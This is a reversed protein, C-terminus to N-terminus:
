FCTAAVTQLSTVNIRSHTEKILVGKVATKHGKHSSPDFVGAGLLEDRQNGLPKAAAAKLVAMSTPQTDSVVPDGARTLTWAGSASQELCGVVQAIDLANQGRHRQLQGSSVQENQSQQPQAPTDGTDISYQIFPTFMEDWSQNAERFYVEKDTGFNHAADSADHHHQLHENKLSNDYHATVILKSGAPLKLPKDLVYALQWHFNYKPVSLVNEEHGDPYVVSYKFDKGRLHAHPQLQYITVPETYATVGIVEYNEAEPPIPPIVVSTGEAKQGPADTLLEKGDAIITEGSAPVRFLQHEPPHPQFWLALSPRDTEPRGITQYHINFNLYMNEGGKLLKASGDGYSEFTTGPTYVGLMDPEAANAPDVVAPRSGISGSPLGLQRAVQARKEIDAPTLGKDLAVETIAMHHVLARNSPLVQLAVIWKDESVPVKALYKVYPIEGTAPLHFEPLKIVLDPALGMPHLWGQPANPVPPLDADNGKPAGANVWAVLTDIEQRSLRPDNRFKMSQKPDAPWPPMERREVQEKVSAAHSRVTDYSLLSLGSGIEGPRHCNVCHKFLIPAVEKTFTPVPADTASPIARFGLVFAAVAGAVWMWQRIEQSVMLDAVGAYCRQFGRGGNHSVIAALTLLRLQLSARTVRM